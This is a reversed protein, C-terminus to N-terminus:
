RILVPTNVQWFQAQNRDYRLFRSFFSYVMVTGDINVNNVQISLAADDTGIPIILKTPASVVSYTRSSNAPVSHGIEQNCFVVPILVKSAAQSDLLQTISGKDWDAADIGTIRLYAEILVYCFTRPLNCTITLIQDEGAAAVTISGSDFFDLEASPISTPMQAAPVGVGIFPFPVGDLTVTTTTSAM